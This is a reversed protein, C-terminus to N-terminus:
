ELGLIERALKLDEESNSHNKIFRFKAELEEETNKVSSKIIQNNNCEDLTKRRVSREFEILMDEIEKEFLLDNEILREEEEEDRM